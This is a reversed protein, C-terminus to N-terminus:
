INKIRDNEYHSWASWVVVTKQKKDITYVVRHQGNIRMSFIKKNKPNLKEMRRINSYPNSKLIEVIEEFQDYLKSRKLLPIDKKIVAKYAKVKWQM